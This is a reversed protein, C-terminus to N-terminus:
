KNNARTLVTLMVKRRGFKRAEGNNPVWVDIKRGKIAGGTDAVLYTGSWAGASIQVRTGLPLHRPDAAIIGRRVGSGTATRGRLAYATASYTVASSSATFSESKAAVANATELEAGLKSSYVDNSIVRERTKEDGNPANIIELNGSVMTDMTQAISVSSEIQPYCLALLASTGLFVATNKLTKNM